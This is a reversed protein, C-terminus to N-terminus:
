FAMLNDESDRDISLNNPDIRVLSPKQRSRIRLTQQGSRIERQEITIVERSSFGRVGPRSRFLGIPLMDAFAAKLERGKGDAYYKRADAIITTEYTGDALRVSPAREAKLDYITIREFLDRVLEREAPTRALSLYGVM